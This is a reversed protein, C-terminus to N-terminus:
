IMLTCLFILMCVSSHQTCFLGCCQSMKTYCLCSAACLLLSSYLLSSAHVCVWVAHMYLPHIGTNVRLICVLICLTLMHGLHSHVFLLFPSQMSMCVLSVYMFLLSCYNSISILLFFFFFFLQVCVCFIALSIKQSTTVSQTGAPPIISSSDVFSM